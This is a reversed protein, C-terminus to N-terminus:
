GNRDPRTTATLPIRARVRWSGSARDVLYLAVDTARARLPLLAASSTAARTLESAPRNKAVTLHAVYTGTDDAPTQAPFCRAVTRALAEFPTPDDPAVYVVREGFWAVRRFVVDFSPVDALCTHLSRVVHDDIVSPDLFPAAITVHADLSHPGRWPTTLVRAEDLPVVVVSLVPRRTLPRRPAM